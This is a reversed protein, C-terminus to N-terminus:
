VSQYTISISVVDGSAIAIPAANTVFTGGDLLLNITSTTGDINCVGTRFLVGSSDFIKWQGLYSHSSSKAAFPASFSLAGAPISTTAGVMLRADLTVDKGNISWRGNVSGDGITIPTGGGTVAPTYGVNVFEAIRDYTVAGTEYYDLVTMGVHLNGKYSFRTIDGPEIYTGYNSTPSTQVDVFENNDIVLSKITSTPKIFCAITTAFTPSALGDSYRNGKITICGLGNTANTTISALNLFGTCKNGILNIDDHTQGAVSQPTVTLFTSGVINDTSKGINNCILISKQAYESAVNIAAKQQPVPSSYTYGDFNFYNNAIITDVPQSLAAVTRFFDVGYFHTYFHNNAIISGKVQAATLNSSVWVGRIYNVFLNNIVKHNQGHIEYCTNGGTRGVTAYGTTNLVINGSFEVDDAWSFVATHDDTDLGNDLFKNNTIRWRKGLTVGTSNSQAVVIDCVGPNNRFTCNDIVVDDIRAAVGGPTGSVLIAAQNYRNYTPRLPSIPNNAGNMDIELNRIYVGSLVENTSFIGMSKPSLDTSVGNAVKFKAGEEAVIELNSRLNFATICPVGADEDAFATAPVISYEYAPVTLRKKTSSAADIAAQISDTDNTVGDGKAGAMLVSISEYGIRKFLVGATASAFILVNDPTDAGAYALLQGGGVGTSAHYEKLNYVAGVIPAVFALDAVTNIVADNLVEEVPRDAMQFGDGTANVQVFKGAVLDLIAVESKTDAIRLTRKIKDGLQQILYTLKDFAREHEEPYFGGQSSFETDQTAERSSRIYVKDGATLGTIFQIQGGDDDGLGSVTYDVRLIENVYVDLDTAADARFTYDFITQGGTATYPGSTITTTNVTM